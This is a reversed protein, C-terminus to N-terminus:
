KSHETAVDLTLDRILRSLAKHYSDHSKWHKFDGISRTNKILAPWGHNIQMISDDLRIPFLVTRDHQREKALAAEVEQEVWQSEMSSKSLVLLLKDHLRISEDIGVRIRDGIRLDKPAFWCRVGQSQLDAYLRAAFAQDRSAYSIFCSYFNFARGTLSAMYTILNDPVGVGRLFVDPINGKSRYITDTGLSSPEFHHVSELGKVVSLDNNVLLTFGMEAESFDSDTLDASFFNTGIIIAKHLNAQNLKTNTFNAGSAFVRMLNSQTLNAGSLDAGSLDAETLDTVMLTSNVLKAGSLNAKTLNSNSLTTAMLKARILIADSLDTNILNAQSLDADLLAAGKLNANSLNALDFKAKILNAHRFDVGSLRAGISSTFEQNSLDPIIEPNQERWTNWAEAGQYLVTNILKDFHEKNAM